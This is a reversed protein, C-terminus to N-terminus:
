LPCPVTEQSWIACTSGKSLAEHYRASWTRAEARATSLAQEHSQRAQEARDSQEQQQKRQRDREQDLAKKVDERGQESAANLRAQWLTNAATYGAQYRANSFWWVGGIIAASILLHPWFKVLLAM